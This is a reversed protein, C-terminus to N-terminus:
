LEAADIGVSKLTHLAEADLKRCFCLSSGKKLGQAYTM